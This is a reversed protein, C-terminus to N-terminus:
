AVHMGNYKLVALFLQNGFNPHNIDVSFHKWVSKFDAHVSESSQESYPGLSLHHKSCFQKVHVFIAHLKPTIPINLDMYSRQFDGIALLFDDHLTQGFCSRRVQDFDKLAKVFPLLRSPVKKELLDTKMLLQRCQNGEMSGGRYAARVIYNEIGWKYARDEGWSDNLKDFIRNVVGLMLHLEPPPILDLVLTTDPGELLPMDVCNQFQQARRLPMGADRFDRVNQRLQGLTYLPAETDYPASAGCWTCPFKSAHSQKGVCINCLKLDACLCFSITSIKLSQLITGVNENSETAAPVIALIILRKVGSDLFGRTKTPTTGSSPEPVANWCIKLSGGGGDIGIKFLLEGESQRQDKIFQTLGEIDHCIVADREVRQIGGSETKSKEIMPLNQHKFFRKLLNNRSQLSERLNPEIANAGMQTRIAQAAKLTKRDSLNLSVQMQKMAEHSIQEVSSSAKDQVGLDFSVNLSRGETGLLTSTTGADSGALERLTQSTIQQKIKSSLVRQINQRRSTRTCNHPIGKGIQSQCKSCITVTSPQDTDANESPRGRRAKPMLPIKQISRATLCIRCQCQSSGRTLPPLNKMEQALQVFNPLGKLSNKRRDYDGLVARHSNCIGTPLFAAIEKYTPCLHATFLEETNKTLQRDAGGLCVLCVKQLNEAHSKFTHPM